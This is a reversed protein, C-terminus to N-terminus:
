RVSVIAYSFARLLSALDSESCFSRTMLLRYRRRRPVAVRRSLASGAAFVGALVFGAKCAAAAVSPAAVTISM